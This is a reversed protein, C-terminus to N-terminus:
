EANAHTEGRWCTAMQRAPRRELSAAWFPRSELPQTCLFGESDIEAFGGFIVSFVVMKIFPQLFAWLSGLITQECRVKANRCAPLYLFERYCLIAPFDISVWGKRPQIVLEPLSLSPASALDDAVAM